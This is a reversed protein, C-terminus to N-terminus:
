AKVDVGCQRKNEKTLEIFLDRRGRRYGWLHASCLVIITSCIVNVIYWTM